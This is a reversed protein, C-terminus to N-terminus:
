WNDSYSCIPLRRDLCINGHKNGSNTKSTFKNKSSVTYTTRHTCSQKWQSNCTWVYTNLRDNTSKILFQQQPMYVATIFTTGYVSSLKTLTHWRGCTAPLLYCVGIRWSDYNSLLSNGWLIHVRKTTELWCSIGVSNYADGEM